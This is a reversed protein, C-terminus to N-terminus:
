PQSKTPAITRTKSEPIAYNPNQFHITKKMKFHHSKYNKSNPTKETNITTQNEKQLTTKIPLTL